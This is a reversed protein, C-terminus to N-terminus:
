YSEYTCKNYFYGRNTYKGKRLYYLNSERRIAIAILLLAIVILLIIYYYVMSLLMLLIPLLIIAQLITSHLSLVMQLFRLPHYLWNSIGDTYSEDKCDKVCTCYFRHPIQFAHALFHHTLSTTLSGIKFYPTTNNNGDDKAQLSVYNSALIGNVVITGSHTFPAYLGAHKRVISQISTVTIGANNTNDPTIDAVLMDGVRVMSAPVPLITAKSNDNNDHGIKNQVAYVLHNPSLELGFPELRLLKVSNQINPNRHGFSYVKEFKKKGILRPRVLVEDGLSLAKMRITGNSKTEVWTEGSFCLGIVPTTTANTTLATTPSSSRLSNTPESTSDPIVLQSSLPTPQPTAPIQQRTPAPTPALPPKLTPASTPQPMPKLTPALTPILTPAFTPQPTPKLTPTPTPQPTPKITIAIPVPTPRTTPELGDDDDDPEGDDDDDPEGDDDPGEDDDPNEEDESSPTSSFTFWLGRANDNVNSSMAKTIWNVHESLRCYQDLSEWDCSNSEDTGSNVGAILWKGNKQILAPGGSDGDQAIAERAQSSSGAKNMTYLLLGDSASDVKNYGERLSQDTKGDKCSTATPYNDPQGKIGMGMIWIIKGGEDSSSYVSRVNHNKFSNAEFQLLAVDNSNPGDEECNFIRDPNRYAALANHKTNQYDIAKIGNKETCVCHAATVVYSSSIVTGACSGREVISVFFKAQSFDIIANQPDEKTIIAM